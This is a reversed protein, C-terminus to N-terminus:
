PNMRNMKRNGENRQNENNPCCNKLAINITETKKRRKELSSFLCGRHVLVCDNRLTTFLFLTINRQEGWCVRPM